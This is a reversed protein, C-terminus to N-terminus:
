HHAPPVIVSAEPPSPWGSKTVEVQYGGPEVNTLVYAGSADTTDSYYYEGRAWVHADAVPSGTSDHVTGSITSSSQRHILVLDLGLRDPPVDVAQVPPSTYDWREVGVFYSGAPVYLAYSGNAGSSVGAAGSAGSVEVLAGSVPSGGENRVVGEVRYGAPFQFNVGPQAPPASMSQQGGQWVPLAPAADAPQVVPRWVLYYDDTSPTSAQESQSAQARPARVPWWSGALIPILIAVRLLFGFSRAKV